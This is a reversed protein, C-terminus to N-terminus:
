EQKNQNDLGTKPTKKLAKSLETAGVVLLFVGFFRRLLATDMRQAISASLIATISGCIAAPIATHWDVMRNKLHLLLSAAATPLFYLLNIGQATRQALGAVATMWVMLISGGGIGLGSIVGCVLGAAINLAM